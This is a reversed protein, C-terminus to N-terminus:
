RKNLQTNLELLRRNEMELYKVKISLEALDKTLELIKERMEDKEDSSKELLSELKDIRKSCDEKIFDDDAQKAQARRDYYRWAGASGLVTILTIFVAYLSQAEM